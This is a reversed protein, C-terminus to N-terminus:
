PQGDTRGEEQAWPADRQADGFWRDEPGPPQPYGLIEEPAWYFFDESQPTLIAM